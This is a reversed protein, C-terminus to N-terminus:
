MDHTQRLNAHFLGELPTAFWDTHELSTSVQKTACHRRAHTDSILEPIECSSTKKFFTKQCAASDSPRVVLKKVTFTSMIANQFICSISSLLIPDDTM